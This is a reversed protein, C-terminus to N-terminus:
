WGFCSVAILPSTTVAAMSISGLVAAVPKLVSGSVSTLTPATMSVTFSTSVGQTASPVTPTCSPPSTYGVVAYSITWNGATDSTTTDNFLKLQGTVLGAKNYTAITASGTSAGADVTSGDSKVGIIRGTVIKMNTIAVPAAALAGSTIATLKSPSITCTPFTGTLDGGCVTVTQGVAATSVIGGAVVGALWVQRRM